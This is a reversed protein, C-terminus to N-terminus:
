SRQLEVTLVLVTALNFGMHTFIAMALGGTRQAVVALVVGIMVLAFTQIGQFHALGFLVASVAVAVPNSYRAQLSRLLLGRFFLEEVVPAGIVVLVVLVVIGWGTARDTLDRAPDSLSEVDLFQSIPWYLLPVFVLQAAVGLPLGIVADM